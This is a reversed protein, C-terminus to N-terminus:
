QNNNTTSTTTVVRSRKVKLLQRVDFRYRVFMNDTEALLQQNFVVQAVTDLGDFVLDIAGRTMLM